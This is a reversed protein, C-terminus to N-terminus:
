RTVAIMGILEQLLGAEGRRNNIGKAKGDCATIHDYIKRLGADSYNRAATKYDNLFSRSYLGAKKLIVNDSERLNQSVVIVQEAWTAIAPLLRFIPERKANDTLNTAIFQMKPIDRNSMANILEFVNYEKSIGINKTVDDVTIPKSLDVNLKLKEVENVIKKLDTGLYQGMMLIANNHVKLDQEKVYNAIWENVKYDRIPASYFVACHESKKAKKMLSINGPIKSNPHSIVLTTHPAPHEIYAALEKLDGMQKAEKIIVVRRQSMMPFQMAYDRIKQADIDIGYLVDQNFSKESETLLSAELYNTLQDVFYPEEGHLIYVPKYQKNTLEKSLQQYSKYEM